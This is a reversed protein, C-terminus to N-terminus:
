PTSVSVTGVDASISDDYVPVDANPDVLETGNWVWGIQGDGAPEMFTGPPPAYPSVGDWIILNICINTTSDIIAWTEM